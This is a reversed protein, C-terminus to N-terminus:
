MVTNGKGNALEIESQRNVFSNAAGAEVKWTM